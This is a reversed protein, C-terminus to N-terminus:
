QYLLALLTLVLKKFRNQLRSTLKRSKEASPVTMTEPLSSLVTRRHSTSVPRQLRVSSPCSYTGQPGTFGDVSRHVTVPQVLLALLTFVLKKLSKAATVYPRDRKRTVALDNGGAATVLRYFQPIHFCAGALVSKFTM